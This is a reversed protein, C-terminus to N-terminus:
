LEPFEMGARRIAEALPMCMFRVEPDRLTGDAMEMRRQVRQYLPHGSDFPIDLYIAGFYGDMVYDRSQPLACKTWKIGHRDLFRIFLRRKLYANVESSGGFMHLEPFCVFLVDRQLECAIQEPYPILEPM